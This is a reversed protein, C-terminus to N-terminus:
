LIIKTPVILDINIVSRTDYDIPNSSAHFYKGPFCIARGKKPSIRQKETLSTFDSGYIENFIITDGDSENIYYLVVIHSFGADVHAPNYKGPQFRRNNTLMNAKIRHLEPSKISFKDIATYILPRIFDFHKDATQVQSHYFLHTYQYSDITNGDVFLEPKTTEVTYINSPGFHWDFSYDISMEEIANQYTPSVLDDIVVIDTM